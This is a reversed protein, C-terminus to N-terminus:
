RLEVLRGAVVDTLLRAAKRAEPIFGALPLVLGFVFMGVPILAAPEFAGASLSHALISVAGVAVFGLWVLIFVLVAPHLKMTGTLRAGGPAPEVTASIQPLFSNRYHIIRSAELSNNTVEGQFALHDRSLRLWRRPETAGRLRALTEAPTLPTEITFRRLPYLWM